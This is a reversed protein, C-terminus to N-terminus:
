VAHMAVNTTFKHLKHAGRLSCIDRPTLAPLCCHKRVVFTPRSAAPGGSPITDSTAPPASPPPPYPGNEAGFAARLGQPHPEVPDRPDSM